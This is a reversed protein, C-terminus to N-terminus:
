SKLYAAPTVIRTRGHRRLALLDKDGSILLDADAREACELFKDDSPDRCLRLTGSIAVRIAGKFIIDLQRDLPRQLWGFKDALVRRLEAEAADCIAIRDYDVAHALALVPSSGPSGFNLASIIVNTDVVVIM